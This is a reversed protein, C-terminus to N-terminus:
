EWVKGTCKKIEECVKKITSNNVKKNYSSEIFSIANKLTMGEYYCFNLIDKM